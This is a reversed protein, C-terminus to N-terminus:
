AFPIKGRDAEKPAVINTSRDWGLMRLHKGKFSSSCALYSPMLPSPRVEGKDAIPNDDTGICPPLILGPYIYLLAYYTVWPTAHCLPTGIDAHMQTQPVRRANPGNQSNSVALLLPKRPAFLGKCNRDPGGQGLYPRKETEGLVAWVQGFHAWAPPPAHPTPTSRHGLQTGHAGRQCCLMISRPPAGRSATRCREPGDTPRKAGNRGGKQSQHRM